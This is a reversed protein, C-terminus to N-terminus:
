YIVGDGCLMDLKSLRTGDIEHKAQLSPTQLPSTSPDVGLEFSLNKAFKAPDVKGGGKVLCM